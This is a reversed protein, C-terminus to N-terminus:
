LKYGQVARKIADVIGRETKDDPRLFGAAVLDCQLDPDIKVNVTFRPGWRKLELGLEAAAIELALSAQVPLVDFWEGGMRKAQLNKHALREIRDSASEADCEAVYELSLPFPSTTQLDKLRKRPNTAKGIKVPGGESKVVYVCYSKQEQQGQRRKRYRQGRLRARSRRKREAATRDKPRLPTDVAILVGERQAVLGDKRWRQLRRTVNYRQWGWRRALEAAPLNTRGGPQSRLWALASEEDLPRVPVINAPVDTM